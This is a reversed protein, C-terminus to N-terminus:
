SAALRSSLRERVRALFTNVDQRLEKVVLPKILCALLATIPLDAAVMERYRIESGDATPTIWADWDNDMNGSVSRCCVHDVGNGEYTVVYNPQFRIGKGVQEKLVWHVLGEPLVDCCEVGTMAERLTELQSFFAYVEEPGAAVRFVKEETAAIKTV